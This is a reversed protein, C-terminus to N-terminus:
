ICYSPAADRAASQRAALDALTFGSLTKDIANAVDCWLDRAVCASARACCAANGVCEVPATKGELATVVDLATIESPNKALTYGGSPGRVTRVLGAGRLSGMLVHIYKGSIEQDKSLEDVPQPGQGHKGALAIMVRLGYRGKTSIRM